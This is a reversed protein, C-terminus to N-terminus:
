VPVVQATGKDTDFQVTLYEEFEVFKRVAEVITERRSERLEELEDETLDGALDDLSKDVAEDLGDAFGDPDKFTIQFRM